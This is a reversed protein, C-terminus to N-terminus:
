TVYTFNLTGQFDSQIDGGQISAAGGSHTTYQFRAQTANAIMTVFGGGFGTVGSLERFMAPYHQSNNRDSTSAASAFPFGTIYVDGTPSSLGLAEFRLQITVLRGIKTYFGKQYESRATISGSTVGFGYTFEGEEYDDLHNASGTGGIYAGGSLYLNKWRNSADGLDTAGDRAGGTSANITRFTNAGDDITVGSPSDAFVIRDGHTGITGVTTGDKYFKVLDGDATNRRIFVPTDSTRTFTASQGSAGIKHGETAIDTTTKGVLLNGSADLTMAESSGSAPSDIVFSQRGNGDQLVLGGSGDGSIRGGTGDGNVYIIGTSGIRMAESGDVSFKMLSSGAANTHDARFEMQGSSNIIENTWTGNSFDISANASNLSVLRSPSTTGIGVRNNTSDVHLTSTDVTLDGTIAVNASFTGGASASVMDATTFSKFAYINVLDNAAAGSALVVSTGNTATFDSPDLVIGNMVVQLNDATYSLTASNDDSGSFTTQGATATYEYLILSVGGASTAAIWNAGDYVRMENATSNFYLDGQTLPDGDNDVTPDATKSGLYTDDFNDFASAASAASAAAATQSAAAATASTAANTASTAANTESTSANSESTAANTASTAAESAKTTATTASTAANTESTGANTESTAANTASTSAESAKTTATTASSAASTASTAAATASTAAASASNSANTESTSANTESTSANSESTSANSESTAAASASNAAATASTAAATASTSANTASTAASVADVLLEFHDTDTLLDGAVSDAVCIYVNNLEAATTSKIIDREAYASTTTTADTGQFTGIEQTVALEGSSDFAFIKNARTTAGVTFETSTMTNTRSLKISRDVEEQTDQAMLTLKDLADEHTVAPFPDNPTYDTTQTLPVNRLLVVTETAAPASVFTITGGGANGVGSVSYHTTKTQVTEAGTANTRLIVQIDDDDLIKFTYSFAVTSADGSYSNKTNTSSITM